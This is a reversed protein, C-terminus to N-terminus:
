DIDIHHLGMDDCLEGLKLALAKSCKAIEIAEKRAANVYKKEGGAWAIDMFKRFNLIAGNM